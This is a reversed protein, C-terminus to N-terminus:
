DIRFVLKLRDYCLRTPTRIKKRLAMNLTTLIPAATLILSLGMKLGNASM